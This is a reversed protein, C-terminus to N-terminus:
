QKTSSFADPKREFSLAKSSIFDAGLQAKLGEVGRSQLSEAAGEPRDIRGKTAVIYFIEKGPEDGAAFWETESPLVHERNPTIIAHETQKPFILSGGGDTRFVYVHCDQAAKFRIQFRDGPRLSGGREETIVIDAGPSPRAPAYGYGSDVAPAQRVIISATLAGASITSQNRVAVLSFVLIAAAATAVVAVPIPQFSFLSGKLWEVAQEFHWRIGAQRHRSTRGKFMNTVRRELDAPPDPLPDVNSDSTMIRSLVTLTERCRFCTALHEEVPAVEHEELARSAYAILTEEDICGQGSKTNMPKM